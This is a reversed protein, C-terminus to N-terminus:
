RSDGLAPALGSSVPLAISAAVILLLLLLKTRSSEDSQTELLTSVAGAGYREYFANRGGASDVDKKARGSLWFPFFVATRNPSDFVCQSLILWYSCLSTLGIVGCAIIIGALRKKNRRRVREKIFAILGFAIFGCIGAIIGFPKRLEEPTGFGSLIVAIGPLIGTILSIWSFVSKM